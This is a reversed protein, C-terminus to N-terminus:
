SMNVCLQNRRLNGREPAAFEKKNNTMLRRPQRNILGIGFDGSLDIATNELKPLASWVGHRAEIGHCPTSEFRARQGFHMFLQYRERDSHGTMTIATDPEMGLRKNAQPGLPFLYHFREGNGDIHTASGGKHVGRFRHM